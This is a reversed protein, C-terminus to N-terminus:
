FSVPYFITYKLIFLAILILSYGFWWGLHVYEGIFIQFEKRLYQSLAMKEFLYAIVTAIVIGPLGILYVLAISLAINFCLEILSVNLLVKNKKLAILIAQPFLMRSCIVLLMIDFIIVAEEFRSGYVATFIWHSSILLVISTPFLFHMQRLSRLKLGSMGEKLSLSLVPIMANSLAAAMAVSLPFERSGYKYIAFTAGEGYFYHVLWGDFVLALGGVLAYICLPWFVVFSKIIDNGRFPLIGFSFLERFLWIVMFGGFVNLYFLLNDIGYGKLFILSFVGIIGVFYIGNFVHLKWTQNSIYLLNPLMMSLVSLFIWMGFALYELRGLDYDGPLFFGCLAITLFSLFAFILFLYFVSWIFQGRKIRDVIGSATLLGQLFGFAWFYTVLYGLYVLWEYAGIQDVSFHSRALLISCLVLTGQRVLQVLQFTKIPDKV